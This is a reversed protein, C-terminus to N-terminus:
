VVELYTAGIHAKKGGLMEPETIFVAAASHEAQCNNSLAKCIAGWTSARTNWKGQQGPGDM